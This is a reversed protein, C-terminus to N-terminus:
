GGASSVSTGAGRVIDGAGKLTGLISTGEYDMLSEDAIIRNAEEILERDGTFAYATHLHKVRSRDEEGLQPVTQAFWNYRYIREKFPTIGVGSKLYEKAFSSLVGDLLVVSSIVM